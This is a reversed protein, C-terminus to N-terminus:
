CRFLTFGFSTKNAKQSLHNGKSGGEAEQSIGKLFIWTPGHELFWRLFEHSDDPTKFRQCPTTCRFTNCIHEKESGCMCFGVCLCVFPKRFDFFSIVNESPVRICVELMDTIDGSQPLWNLNAHLVHAESVPGNEWLWSWSAINWKLFLVLIM